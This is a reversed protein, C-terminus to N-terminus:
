RPVKKGSIATALLSLGNAVHTLSFPDKVRPPPVSPFGTLVGRTMVFAEGGGSGGSWSNQSMGFPPGYDFDRDRDTLEAIAKTRQHTSIWGYAFEIGNTYDLRELYPGIPVMWDYVFSWPLLEWALSAPNTIGLQSLNSSFSSNVRYAILGNGRVSHESSQIKRGPSAGSAPLKVTVPNCTEQASAKVTFLNGNDNWANEVTKLCAYIDSLAPKWGYQLALWQEPVGGAVRKVRDGRGSTGFLNRSAGVVDGKRLSFITQAFRRATSAVMNAAQTRTQLVEGLNVRNSQIRDILKNTIREIVRGKAEETSWRFDSWPYYDGGARGVGWDGGASDGNAFTSNVSLHQNQWTFNSRLYGNTGVYSPWGASNGGDKDQYETRLYHTSDGNYTQNQSASHFWNHVTISENANIPFGPKSMIRGKVHTLLIVWALSSPCPMM